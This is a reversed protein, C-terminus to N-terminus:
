FPVDQWGDSWIVEPQPRVRCQAVAKLVIFCHGVNARALREAEVRASEETLHRVRPSCGAPNWVMWYSASCSPAPYSGCAAAGSQNTEM